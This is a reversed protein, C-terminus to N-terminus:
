GQAVHVHMCLSTQHFHEEIKPININKTSYYLEMIIIKASNIMTMCHGIHAIEFTETVARM